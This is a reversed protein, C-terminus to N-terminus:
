FVMKLATGYQTGENFNPEGSGKEISFQWLTERKGTPSELLVFGASVRLAYYFEGDLFEYWGTAGPSLVLETKRGLIPFQRRIDWSASLKLRGIPDDLAEGSEDRAGRRQLADDVKFKYGGQVFVGIKPNVGLM